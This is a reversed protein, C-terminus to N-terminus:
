IPVNKELGSLSVAVLSINIRARIALPESTIALSSMIRSQKTTIPRPLNLMWDSTAFFICLITRNSLFADPFEISPVAPRKRHLSALTRSNTELKM